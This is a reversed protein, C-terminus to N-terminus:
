KAKNRKNESRAEQRLLEAMHLVFWQPQDMLETWTWCMRKCLAVQNM